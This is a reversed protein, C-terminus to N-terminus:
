NELEKLIARVVNKTNASGISNALRMIDIRIRQKRNEKIIEIFENYEDETVEFPVCGDKRLTYKM